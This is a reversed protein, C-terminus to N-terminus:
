STPLPSSLLLMMKKQAPMNRLSTTKAKSDGNMLYVSHKAVPMYKIDKM